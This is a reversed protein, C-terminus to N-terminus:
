ARGGKAFAGVYGIAAFLLSAVINWGAFSLGLFHGPASDCSPPRVANLEDLLNGANQTIRMASSCDAPGQWYKLEVGTHFVALVLGYTMLLAGLLILVRTLMSSLNLCSSVWGMALLPIAIYYPTRQELCLKCPIFGGVYEFALATGVTAALGLTMIGAVWTQIKGTSKTLAVM